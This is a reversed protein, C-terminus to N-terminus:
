KSAPMEGHTDGLSNSEKEKLSRSEPLATKPEVWSWKLLSRIYTLDNRDITRFTEFHNQFGVDCVSSSLPGFM